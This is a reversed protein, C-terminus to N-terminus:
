RCIVCCDFKWCPDDGRNHIDVDSYELNRNGSDHESGDPVSGHSIRGDPLPMLMRMKRTCRQFCSQRRIICIIRKSSPNIIISRCCTHCDRGICWSHRGGPLKTTRSSATSIILSHFFLSTKMFPNFRPDSTGIISCLYGSPCSDGDKHGHGSGKILLKGGYARLHRVTMTEMSMQTVTVVSVATTTVVVPLTVQHSQIIARDLDTGTRIMRSIERLTRTRARIWPLRLARTALRM